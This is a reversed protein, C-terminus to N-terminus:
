RRVARARVPRALAGAALRRVPGGGGPQPPSRAPNRAVPAGRGLVAGRGMTSKQTLKELLLGSSCTDVSV